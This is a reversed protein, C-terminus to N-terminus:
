SVKMSATLTRLQGLADRAKGLASAAAAPDAHAAGPPSTAAQAARIAQWALHAAESAQKVVAPDSCLAPGHPACRPLMAYAVAVDIAADYGAELAFATQAPTEPTACSTLLCLAAIALRHRM